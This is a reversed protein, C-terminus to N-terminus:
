PCGADKAAKIWWSLQSSSSCLLKWTEFDVKGNINLSAGSQAKIVADKTSMDFVGSARLYSSQNDGYLYWNLLKQSDSVCHGSQGYTFSLNVCAKPNPNYPRDNHFIAYVIALAIIALGILTFPVEWRMWWHRDVM